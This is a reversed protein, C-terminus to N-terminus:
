TRANTMFFQRVTNACYGIALVYTMAEYQRHAGMYSLTGIITLVCILHLAKLM